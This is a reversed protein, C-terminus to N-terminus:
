PMSRVTGQTRRRMRRGTETDRLWHVAILAGLLVALASPEPVVRVDTIALPPFGSARGEAGGLGNQPLPVGGESIWLLRDGLVVPGGEIAIEIPELWFFM